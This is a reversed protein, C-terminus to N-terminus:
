LMENKFEKKQVFRLYKNQAPNHINYHTNKCVINKFM